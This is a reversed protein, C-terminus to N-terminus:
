SLASAKAKLNLHSSGFPPPTPASEMLETRWRQTQLSPAQWDRALVWEWLESNISPSCFGQDCGMSAVM